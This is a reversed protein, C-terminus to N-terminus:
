DELFYAAERDIRFSWRLPPHAPTGANDKWTIAVQCPTHRLPRNVTWSFRKTEPHYIAPVDGFGGIRMVLTATDIDAVQSLDASIEPTRSSIMAGPEPQVPHATTQIMSVISGTAVPATGTPDAFTTALGFVLDRTGLIMYRPLQLDPMERTVKAPQVTFAYPYGFEQLLPFMEETSFGGPFAYTTIPQHFKSELFRKSEGIEKRLYADFSEPTKAKERKVTAPYPHSVSHSGITAGAAIMEQIMPTTLAKGGGDVYNKYLYLTFPYGFERLIPFADTYVSKWGDDLTLLISKQPIPKGSQKWDIFQPLSIVELGLERIASMQKRFKTTRIRMETEPLTDSFDHYGLIAVRSDDAEQPPAAAPAVATAPPAAEQAPLRCLLLLCLALTSSLRLM